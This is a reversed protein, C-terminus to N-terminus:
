METPNNQPKVEVKEIGSFDSFRAYAGPGPGQKKDKMKWETDIFTLHNKGISTSGQFRYQSNFNQNLGDKPAYSGPAPVDFRGTRFRDNAQQITYNMSNSVRSDAVKNGVVDPHSYQGPGPLKKSKGLALDDM